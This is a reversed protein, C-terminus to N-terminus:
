KNVKGNLNLIETIEAVTYYRGHRIDDNTVALNLSLTHDFGCFRADIYNIAIRLYNRRQM